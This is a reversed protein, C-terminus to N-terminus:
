QTTDASLEKIINPPTEGRLGKVLNEAALKAMALRTQPTASGIHPVTVVNKLKLLPNDPNIPEQQFVDLGAARIEGNQLADIMAEEDVTKGRSANIFIASKKMLQFQERGIFHETEPTLPTMLVIFDSQRLLEDLSAYTVGLNQEVEPKPRRNYYLVDMDFGFKGRKAIKEGIRGMGIIGLTTHHVDIGFLEEGIIETWQGQKMYQDLEPIRRAASLILAFVLDAVTDDLVYPTHTGIVNRERMAEIDFNNYGVSANSVIKLKPAHELLEADIKGGSTTYLGEIDQVEQLLQERSEKKYDFKRVNCFQRIYAEVEEPVPVTLLVNPKM